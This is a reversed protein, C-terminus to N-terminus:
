RWWPPRASPSASRRGGPVWTLGQHAPCCGTSRWRSWRRRPRWLCWPPPPGRGSGDAAQAPRARRAPPAVMSIVGCALVIAAIVALAVAAWPTGASKGSAAGAAGSIGPKLHNLDSQGGPQGPTPQGPSQTALNVPPAGNLSGTGPASGMYNPSSATGQGGPTPEFRMWGLTPFYVETWAHADTNKVVYRDSGSKSPTGATFGVVFMAPIGLLRTLVTMAYAYQVCYGIRTETLFALLGAANDFTTANLSYVYPPASLWNALANVKALETSAGATRQEALRKLAATKYSAPLDLDAAMSATSTLRPARALQAQSPDVALSTMSYTQGGIASVTSYVMLDPDALWRGPARVQTAPYLLPLFTPQSGPDPFDKTTTVTTDVLQAASTDTLGQPRPLSSSIETAGAAYNTVQWGTSGLTNFVYQRFYQADNNELEKPASTTYTFVVKPNEHLQAVTQSLASPLSLVGSDSGGGTGGIGPGSSFVKSAHLGPLLLPACLALVISALGVRRSAAALARTDPRGFPGGARSSGRGDGSYGAGTRGAADYRPDPRWASVLRGWVRIRERGDASLMALYGAGGACFVLATTLTSHPPNMMVPVTFLVLLPLGALATSRLRVAILDTVVATIGVGAAALLLLSPVNPVAPAYRNADTIGTGFLRWLAAISAPTPIVFLLCHRAEFM